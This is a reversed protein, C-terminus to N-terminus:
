QRSRRPPSRRPWGGESEPEHKGWSRSGRAFRRIVSLPDSLDDSWQKGYLSNGVLARERAVPCRPERLIPLPPLQRTTTIGKRTPAGRTQHILTFHVRSFKLNPNFSRGINTLIFDLPRRCQRRSRNSNRSRNHKGVMVGKGRKEDYENGGKMYIAVERNTRRM